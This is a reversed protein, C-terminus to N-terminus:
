CGNTTAAPRKWARAGSASSWNSAIASRSRRRTNRSKPRPPQADCRRAAGPGEWTCARGARADAGAGVAGEQACTGGGALFEGGRCDTRGDSICGARSGSPRADGARRAQTPTALRNLERAYAKALPVNLHMRASLNSAGAHLAVRVTLRGRSVYRNILDRIQAELMEMERPLAVSIETQKRNVSSLEVTIKFGDQSCEGRGYGTMSKMAAPTHALPPPCAFLFNFAAGSNLFKPLPPNRASAAPSPPPTPARSCGPSITNALLCFKVMPPTPKRSPNLSPRVSTRGGPIPASVTWSHDLFGLAM